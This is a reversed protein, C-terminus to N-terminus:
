ATGTPPEDGMETAINHQGRGGQRGAVLRSMPRAWWQVMCVWATPLASFVPLRKVIFLLSSHTFISCTHTNINTHSLSMLITKTQTHMICMSTSTSGYIYTHTYIYHVHQHSASTHTHTKGLTVVDSNM